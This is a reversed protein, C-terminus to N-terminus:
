QNEKQSIKIGDCGCPDIGRSESGGKSRRRGIESQRSADPPRTVPLAAPSISRQIAGGDVATQNLGAGGAKCM